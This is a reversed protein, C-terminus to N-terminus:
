LYRSKLFHLNCILIVFSFSVRIDSYLCKVCTSCEVSNASVLNKNMLSHKKTWVTQMCHRFAGCENATDVTQCWYSPGKSCSSDCQVITVIALLALFKLM